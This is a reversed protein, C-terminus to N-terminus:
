IGSGLLLSRRPIKGLVLAWIFLSFESNKWTESVIHLRHESNAEFGVHWGGVANNTKPMAGKAAEYCNWTEIPFKPAQGWGGRRNSRPEAFLKGDIIKAFLTQSCNETCVIKLSGFITPSYAFVPASNLNM